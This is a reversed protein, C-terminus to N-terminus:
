EGRNKLTAELQAEVYELARLDHTTTDERNKLPEIILGVCRHMSRVDETTASQGVWDGPRVTTAMAYCRKTLLLVDLVYINKELLDAGLSGGAKQQLAYAKKLMRRFTPLTLDFGKIHPKLIICKELMMRLSVFPQISLTMSPQRLAARMQTKILKVREELLTEPTDRLLICLKYVPEWMGFVEPKPFHTRALENGLQRQRCADLYAQLLDSRPVSAFPNSKPHLKKHDRHPAAIPLYGDLNTVDAPIQEMVSAVAVPDESLVSALLADRVAALKLLTVPDRANISKQTITSMPVSVTEDPSTRTTTATVAVKRVVKEQNATSTDTTTGFTGYGGKGRGSWQTATPPRERAEVEEDLGVLPTEASDSGLDKAATPMSQRRTKTGAESEDLPVHSQSFISESFSAKKKLETPMSRRQAKKDVTPSPASEAKEAKEARKAAKVAAHLISGHDRWADTVWSLMRECEADKLTGRIAVAATRASEARTAADENKQRGKFTGFGMYLHLKKPNKDNCYAQNQEALARLHKKVTDLDPSKESLAAVLAQRHQESDDSRAMGLGQPAAKASRVVTFRIPAEQATTGTRSRTGGNMGAASSPLPKGANKGTDETNSAVPLPNHSSTSLEPKSM